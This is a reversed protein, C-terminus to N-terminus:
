WRPGVYPPQDRADACYEGNWYRFEGCNAPRPPPLLDVDPVTDPPPPDPDARPPPPPDDLDDDDYVDDHRHHNVAVIPGRHQELASLPLGPYAGSPSASLFGLMMLCFFFAVANRM